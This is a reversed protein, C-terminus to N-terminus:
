GGTLAKLDRPTEDLLGVAANGGQKLIRQGAEAALPQTCAVIGNTSHVVSRRSPFSSFDPDSAPYIHKANLPMITSSLRAIKFGLQYAKLSTFTSTLAHHFRMVSHARLRGSGQLNFRISVHFGNVLAITVNETRHRGAPTRSVGSTGKKAPGRLM